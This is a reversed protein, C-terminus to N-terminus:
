LVISRAVARGSAGTDAVAEFTKLAVPRGDEKVQFDEQRLGTVARGSDDAVVADLEVLYPSDTPQVGRAIVTAAIAGVFALTLGAAARM